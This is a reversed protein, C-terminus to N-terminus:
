NICCKHQYGQSLIFTKYLIDFRVSQCYLKDSSNRFITHLDKLMQKQEDSFWVPPEFLISPMDQLTSLFDKYSGDRPPSYRPVDKIRTYDESNVYRMDMDHYQNFHDALQTISYSALFDDPRVIGGNVYKVRPCRAPMTITYLFVTILEYMSVFNRKFVNDYVGKNEVSLELTKGNYICDALNREFANGDREVGALSGFPNTIIVGKYFTDSFLSNHLIVDDCLRKSWSYPNWNSKNDVATISTAHVFSTCKLADAIMVASNTCLLNNGVTQTPNILSQPISTEACLNVLACAKLKQQKCWAIFDKTEQMCALDAKFCDFKGHCKFGTSKFFNKIEGNEAKRDVGIVNYGLRLLTVTLNFGIYGLFGTVVVNNKM